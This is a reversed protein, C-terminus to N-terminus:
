ATKKLFEATGATAYITYGKKDLEGCAELMDVKSKASGSSIM